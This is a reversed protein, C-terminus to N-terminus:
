RADREQVALDALQAARKVITEIPTTLNGATAALIAAFFFDYRTLPLMNDQPTKM